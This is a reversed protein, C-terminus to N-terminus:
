LLDRILSAMKGSLNAANYQGILDHRINKRFEDRDLNAAQNLLRAMEPVDDGPCVFGANLERILQAVSGTLSSFSLIPIGMYAYEYIKSSRAQEATQPYYFHLLIDAHRIRKLLQDRPVFGHIVIDDQAYRDILMQTDENINGFVELVPKKGNWSERFQKWAELLMAPNYKNEHVNFKGAYAVLLTDNDSKEGFPFEFDAPDFGNPILGVPINRGAVERKLEEAHSETLGVIADCHRYCFRSVIKNYLTRVFSSSGEISYSGWPDRYEEVLKIGTLFRLVIAAVILSFPGGTVLMAEIRHKRIIKIMSPISGLAWFIHIDPSAILDKMMVLIKLILKKLPSKATTYIKVSKRYQHDPFRTPRRYIVADDPIAEKMRENIVYDPNSATMVIPQFGYKGIYRLTRTIRYAATINLPAYCFTFVLLPTKKM